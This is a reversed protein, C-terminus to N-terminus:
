PKAFQWSIDYRISNWGTSASKQSPARLHHGVRSKGWFWILQKNISQDPTPYEVLPSLNIFFYQFSFAPLTCKRLQDSLRAM